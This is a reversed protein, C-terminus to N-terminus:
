SFPLMARLVLQSLLAYFVLQLVAKVSSLQVTQMPAMRVLPVQSAAATPLSFRLTPKLARPVIASHIQACIALIAALRAFEERLLIRRWLAMLAAVATRAPSTRSTFALQAVLAFQLLVAYLARLSM